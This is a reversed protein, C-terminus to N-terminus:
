FYALNVILILKVSEMKHNKCERQVFGSIGLQKRPIGSVFIAGTTREVQIGPYVHQDVQIVENEPKFHDINNCFIM